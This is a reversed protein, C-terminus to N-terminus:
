IILNQPYKRNAMYEGSILKNELVARTGNHLLHTFIGFDM